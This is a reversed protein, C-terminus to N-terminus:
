NPNNQRRSRGRYALHLELKPIVNAIEECEVMSNLSRAAQGGGGENSVESREFPLM